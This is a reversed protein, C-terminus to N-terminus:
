QSRHGRGGAGLWASASCRSSAPGAASPVSLAPISGRRARKCGQPALHGENKCPLFSGIQWFYTEAGFNSVVRLLSFFFFGCCLATGVPVHRRVGILCLCAPLSSRTVSLGSIQPRQATYGRPGTLVASAGSGPCPTYMRPLPSPTTPTGHGVRCLDTPPVSGGSGAGGGSQSSRRVLSPPSYLGGPARILCCPGLDVQVKQCCSAREGPRVHAVPCPSPGGM